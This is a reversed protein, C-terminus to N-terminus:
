FLLDFVANGPFILNGKPQVLHKPLAGVSFSGGRGGQELLSMGTIVQQRGTSSAPWAQSKDALRLLHLVEAFVAPVDDRGPPVEVFTLKLVKERYEANNGTRGSPGKNDVESVEIEQVSIAEEEIQMAESEEAVSKEEESESDGEADAEAEAAKAEGEPENKRPKKVKREEEKQANLKEALIRAEEAIREAEEQHKKVDALAEEGFMSAFEAELQSRPRERLARVVSLKEYMEIAKQKFTKMWNDGVNVSISAIYRHLTETWEDIKGTSGRDLRRPDLKFDLFKAEWCAYRCEALYLGWGPLAPVDVVLEPSLAIELFDMPVWNLAIAIALGLMKRVQGKLLADGSISFVVWDEDNISLIEKHYIRDLRRTVSSDNPAAGASVFNHFKNRGALAKCIVKLKRFFNIRIQGEATELPFSQDMNGLKSNKKAHHHREKRRTVPETPLVSSEDSMIFKLPLMFEYRRQTCETEAHFSSGAGPTLIYAYHIRMTDPLFSNMKAVWDDVTIGILPKMQFAFTDAQSHCTSETGFIQATRQLCSSGRSFGKPRDITTNAAIDQVSSLKNEWTFLARFMASEVEASTEDVTHCTQQAQENLWVETCEFVKSLWGVLLVAKVPKADKSEVGHISLHKFLKTKSAFQEGCTDCVCAKSESM